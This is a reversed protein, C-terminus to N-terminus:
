KQKGAFLARFDNGAFQQKPLKNNLCFLYSFKFRQQTRHVHWFPLHELLIAIEGFLDNPVVTKDVVYVISVIDLDM